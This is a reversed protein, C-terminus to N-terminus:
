SSPFYRDSFFSSSSPMPASKNSQLPSASDILNRLTMLMDIEEEVDSFGWVRSKERNIDGVARVPLESPRDFKWRFVPDALTAQPNIKKWEEFTRRSEEKLNKIRERQEPTELYCKECSFGHMEDGCFSLEASHTRKTAITSSPSLHTGEIRAARLEITVTECNKETMEWIEEWNGGQIQFTTEQHIHGIRVTVQEGNLLSIGSCSVLGQGVFEGYQQDMGPLRSLFKGTPLVDVPLSKEFRLVNGPPSEQESM